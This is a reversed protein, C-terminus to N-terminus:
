DPNAWDGVDKGNDGEIVGDHFKAGEVDRVFPHFSHGGDDKDAGSHHNVEEGEEDDGFNGLDM